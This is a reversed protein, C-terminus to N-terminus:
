AKRRLRLRGPIVVLAAVAGQLALGTVAVPV